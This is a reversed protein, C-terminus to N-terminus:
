KQWHWVGIVVVDRAQSILLWLMYGISDSAAVYNPRFYPL